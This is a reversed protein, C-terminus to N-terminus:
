KTTQKELWDILQPIISVPFEIICNGEGRKGIPTLMVRDTMMGGLGNLRTLNIGYGNFTGNRGTWVPLDKMAGLGPFKIKIATANPDPIKPPFPAPGTSDYTAEIKHAKTSVVTPLGAREIEAASAEPPESREGPGQAVLPRAVQESEANAANQKSERGVSDQSIPKGGREAGNDAGTGQGALCSEDTDPTPMPQGSVATIGHDHEKRVADPKRRDQAAQKLNGEATPATPFDKESPRRLQYKKLKSFIIQLGLEKEPVPKWAGGDNYQDGKQLIRNSTLISM